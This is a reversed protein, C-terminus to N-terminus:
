ARLYISIPLTAWAKCILSHPYPLQLIRQRQRWRNTVQQTRAAELLISSFRLSIWSWCSWIWNSLLVTFSVLASFSWSLLSICFCCCSSSCHKSNVASICVKVLSMLTCKINQKDLSSRKLQICSVLIKTTNELEGKLNTLSFAICHVDQVYLKRM